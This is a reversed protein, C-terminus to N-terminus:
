VFQAANFAFAVAVAAIFLGVIFGLILNAIFIILWALISKGVSVYYFRYILYIFIFANVGAFLMNILIAAIRGMMGFSASFALPILSLLFSAIAAMGAVKYATEWSTNRFKLWGSVFKLLLGNIAFFIATTFLGVIAAILFDTFAM